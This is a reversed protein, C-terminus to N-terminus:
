NDNNNLKANTRLNRILKLREIENKIILKCKGGIILIMKILIADDWMEQTFIGQEM